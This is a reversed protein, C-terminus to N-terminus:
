ILKPPVTYLHNKQGLRIFLVNKMENIHQMVFLLNVGFRTDHMYVRSSRTHVTYLSYIFDSFCIFFFFLYFPKHPGFHDPTHLDLLEHKRYISALLKWLLYMVISPKTILSISLIFLPTIVFFLLHKRFRSLSTNFHDYLPILRNLTSATPYFMTKVRVDSPPTFFNYFFPAIMGQIHRRPPFLVDFFDDAPSENMPRRFPLPPKLSGGEGRLHTHWQGVRPLSVGGGGGWLLGGAVSRLRKLHPAKRVTKVSTFLGRM